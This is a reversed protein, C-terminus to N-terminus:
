GSDSDISWRATSPASPARNRWHIISATLWGSISAISPHRDQRFRLATRTHDHDAGPRATIRGREEGGVHAHLDGQDVRLLVWVVDVEVAAADGGLRQEVHCTDDVFRAFSC